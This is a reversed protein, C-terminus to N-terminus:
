LTRCEKVYDLIVELHEALKNGSITVEGDLYARVLDTAVDISPIISNIPYGDTYGLTGWSKHRIKSTKINQEIIFPSGWVTLTRWESTTPLKVGELCSSAWIGAKSQEKKADSREQYHTAVKKDFTWGNRECWYQRDHEIEDSNWINAIVYGAHQREDDLPVVSYEEKLTVVAKAHELTAYPTAYDLEEIKGIGDRYYYGDGDRLVYRMGSM